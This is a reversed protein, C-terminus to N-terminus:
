AWHDSECVNLAHEAALNTHASGRKFHETPHAGREVSPVLAGSKGLEISLRGPQSFLKRTKRRWLQQFMKTRPLRRFEKGAERGPCLLCRGPLLIKKRVLGRGQNILCLAYGVFMAPGEEAKAFLTETDAFNIPVEIRERTIVPGESMM